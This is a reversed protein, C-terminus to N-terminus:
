DSLMFCFDTKHFEELLNILTDSIIM